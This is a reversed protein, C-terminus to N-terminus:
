LDQMSLGCSCLWLAKGPPTQAPIEKSYMNLGPSVQASCNLEPDWPAGLGPPPHEPPLPPSHGCAAIIWGLQPKRSGLAEGAEPIVSGFNLLRQLKFIGAIWVLDMHAACPVAM